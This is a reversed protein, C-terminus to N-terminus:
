DRPCKIIRHKPQPDPNLDPWPSSSVFSFAAFNDANVYLLYSLIPHKLFRSWPKNGENSTLQFGLSHLFSFPQKLLKQFDSYFKETECRKIFLIGRLFSIGFCFLCSILSKACHNEENYTLIVSPSTSVCFLQKGDKFYTIWDTQTPGM